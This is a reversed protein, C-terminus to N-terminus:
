SGSQQLIQPRLKRRPVDKTYCHCREGGSLSWQLVVVGREREGPQLFISVTDNKNLIVTDSLLHLLHGSSTVFDSLRLLWAERHFPHICGDAAAETVTEQWESSLVGGQAPLWSFCDMWQKGVVRPLHPLWAWINATLTWINILMGFLPHEDKLILFVMSQQTSSNTEKDRCIQGTGLSSSITVNTRQYDALSQM